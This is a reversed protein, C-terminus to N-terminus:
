LHEGWEEKQPQLQLGTKAVAFELRREKTLVFFSNVFSRRKLDLHKLPFPLGSEFFDMSMEMWELTMNM